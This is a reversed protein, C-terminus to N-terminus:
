AHPHGEAPFATARPEAELPLGNTPQSTTRHPGAPAPVARRTADDLDTVHPVTNDPM